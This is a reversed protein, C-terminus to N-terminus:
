EQEELKEKLQAFIDKSADMKKQNTNNWENNLDCELVLTIRYVTMLGGMGDSLPVVHTNVDYAVDLVSKPVVKDFNIEAVHNDFWKRDRLIVIKDSHNKIDINLM